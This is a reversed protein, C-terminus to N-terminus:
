ADALATMVAAAFVMLPSGHGALVVPDFDRRRAFRRRAKAPEDANLGTAVGFLGVRRTVLTVDGPRDTRIRSATRMGLPWSGERQKNAPSLTAVIEDPTKMLMAPYSLSLVHCVLVFTERM